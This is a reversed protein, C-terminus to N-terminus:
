LAEMVDYERNSLYDKGMFHKREIYQVLSLQKYASPENGCTTLWTNYRCSMELCARSDSIGSGPIPYIALFIKITIIDYSIFINLVSIPLKFAYRFTKIIITISELLM